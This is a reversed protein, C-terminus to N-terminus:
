LLISGCLDCLVCLLLPFRFFSVFEQRRIGMGERRKERHGRHGRHGLCPKAKSRSMTSKAAGFQAHNGGIRGRTLPRYSLAAIDEAPVWSPYFLLHYFPIHPSGFFTENEEPNMKKEAMKRETM